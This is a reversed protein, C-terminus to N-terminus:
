AQRVAFPGVRRHDHPNAVGNKHNKAAIAALANGFMQMPGFVDLNEFHPFLVVGLLKNADAM